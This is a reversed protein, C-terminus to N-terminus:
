QIRYTAWLRHNDRLFHLHFQKISQRRTKNEVQMPTCSLKLKWNIIATRTNKVIDTPSMSPPLPPPLPPKENKAILSKTNVHCKSLMTGVYHSSIIGVKGEYKIMM